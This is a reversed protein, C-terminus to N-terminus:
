SDVGTATSGTGSGLLATALRTYAIRTAAGLAQSRIPRASSRARDHPISIVPVGIARRVLDASRDATRGLDVLAVVVRPADPHALLAPIVAAAEELAFRDARAVLCVVHSAAAVQGLDVQWPRVGWDTAVVDYFRTIPDLHEAWTAPSASGRTVAISQLDLAYLGSATIPLGDRADSTSRAGSRRESPYHQATSPLGAHWLMSSTGTSANVGLVMGSRRRALLSAVYAATSSAGAGGRLQVFGVRRSLPLPMRLLRDSMVLEHTMASTGGLVALPTSLLQTLVRPM